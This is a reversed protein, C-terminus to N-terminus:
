RRLGSVAFRIFGTVSKRDFTMLYTGFILLSLTSKIIGWIIVNESVVTESNVYYIMMTATLLFLFPRIFQSVYSSLSINAMPLLQIYWMPVTLLVSLIAYLAAVATINYLSGVFIFIPTISVRIITWKFGIDTRGTAIQLSGVPNSISSICCAFALFM